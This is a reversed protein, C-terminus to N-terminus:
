QREATWTGAVTDNFLLQGGMNPVIPGKFRYVPARTDADQIDIVDDNLSWSGELQAGGEKFIWTLDDFISLTGDGDLLINGDYGSYELRYNGMVPQLAGNLVKNEGAAVNFDVTLGYGFNQKKLLLKYGAAKVNTFTYGGNADTTATQNGGVLSVTAGAIPKGNRMDSLMGTISGLSNTSGTGADSDCSTSSFAICILFLSLGLYKM